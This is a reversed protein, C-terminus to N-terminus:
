CCATFGSIPESNRNRGIGGANSAGTLSPLTGTPINSHRKARSGSPSFIKIIHKNTKVSNVFTVSVCVCDCVSLCLMVVYAASTYCRAAFISCHKRFNHEFLFLNLKKVWLTYTFTRRGDPSYVHEYTFLLAWLKQRAISHMLAAMGDHPTRTDTHTDTQTVTV